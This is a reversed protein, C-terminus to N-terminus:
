RGVPVTNLTRRSVRPLVPSVRRQLTSSAGNACIKFDGLIVPNEVGKKDEIGDIQEVLIVGSSADARIGFDLIREM